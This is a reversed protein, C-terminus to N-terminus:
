AAVVVRQLLLCVRLLCGYRQCTYQLVQLRSVQELAWDAAAAAACLCGSVAAEQVTLLMAGVAAGAQTSDM